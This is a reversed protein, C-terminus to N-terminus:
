GFLGEAHKKVREVVKEGCQMLKKVEREYGAFYKYHQFGESTIRVYEDEVGVLKETFNVYHCCTYSGTDVVRYNPAPDVIHVLRAMAPFLEEAEKQFKRMVLGHFELKPEESFYPLRGGARQGIAYLAAMRFLANGLGGGQGWLSSTIYRPPKSSGPLPVLAGLEPWIARVGGGAGGSPPAAWRTVFYFVAAALLLALFLLLFLLAAPRLRTLRRNAKM